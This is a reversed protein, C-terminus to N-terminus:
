TLSKSVGEKPATTIQLTFLRAPGQGTSGDTLLKVYFNIQRYRLSKNFKVFRRATGSNTVVTTSIGPVNSLPQAWTFAELQAWTFAELQAWTVSFSAVIPTAIGLIDRNSIVDAGWWWLRKYQSSVAMDFNKTKIECQIDARVNAMNSITLNDFQMNPIVNTNPASIFSGILISGTAFAADTVSIQYAMPEAGSAKWMKSKVSTGSLRFRILYKEAAVYTGAIVVTGLNTVAGAVIKYVDMSLNGLLNFNARLLYTNNANTYRAWIDATYVGGLAVASPICDVLIDIDAYPGTLSSLRTVNKTPHTIRGTGSGVSYDAAAGGDIGWAQGTDTVGWNGSAITRGFADTVTSTPDLTQEFSAGTSDDFIRVLTRYALIGSGAYFEDGTDNHITVVPGFYQLRDRSSDWEAWTRTRLGYVYTKAYYRVILRDGVLSVAMKESAFPSPSSPDQIFPVKTNLRQFDYNVIEYVWGNHFTYVQNEYNLVCFQDEVGITSSIRKVVADTPRIDFALIHTSQDKFLLLNDQYVTVDILSSGDGQGIDIFNAPPWVDFNAPDTFSLRSTNTTSVKGPVIFLREKHVTCAQGKPIAAVATFGGIPDWKGGPNVSGPFPVLYIKDAYQVACSARFTNTILTWVGNLYYFVGNTNSGILYHTGAFVGECLCVIRETFTSHGDIETLPPRSVLSGDVDLEMNTCTVLEADAIATPDSGTNLGGIFPGLRLAKGGPM